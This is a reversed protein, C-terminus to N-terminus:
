ETVLLYNDNLDRAALYTAIKKIEEDTIGEYLKNKEVVLFKHEPTCEINNNIVLTEKTKKKFINTVKCKGNLTQVYDGVDIDEINLISDDAMRIGTGKVFCASGGGIGTRVYDCGVKEYEKYTKPNAVNGAMVLITDGYKDKIKRIIKLEKDMHGNAIDICIRFQEEIQNLEIFNTDVFKEVAEALSVAIFSNYQIGLEVRKDFAITRPIVVNIGEKIFYKINNENIVSGMPAAFIPLYGREDNINCEKRSDIYTVVEPVISVDNYSLKIDKLTKKSM